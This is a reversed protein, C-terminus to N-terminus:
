LLLTPLPKSRSTCPACGDSVCTTCETVWGLVLIAWQRKVETIVYISMVSCWLECPWFTNQDGLARVFGDSVHTAYYLKRFDQSVFFKWSPYM